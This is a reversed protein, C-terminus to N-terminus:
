KFRVFERVFEGNIYYLHCEENYRYEENYRNEVFAPGHDRHLLGHKFWTKIWRNKNQGIVAPEDNESHLQGNTYYKEVMLNETWDNTEYTKVYERLLELKINNQEFWKVLEDAIITKCVIVCHQKLYTQIINDDCVIYLQQFEDPTLCKVIISYIDLPLHFLMFCEYNMNIKM